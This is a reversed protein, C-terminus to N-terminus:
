ASLRKEGSFHGDLLELVQRADALEAQARDDLEEDWDVNEVFQAMAVWLTRAQADSLKLSVNM